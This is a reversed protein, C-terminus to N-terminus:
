KSFHNLSLYHVEMASKPCLDRGRANMRSDDTIRITTVLSLVRALLRVNSYLM